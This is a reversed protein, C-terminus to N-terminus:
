MITVNADKIIQNLPTMTITAKGHTGNTIYGFLIDTYEIDNQTFTYKVSGESKFQLKYIGTSYPAVPKVKYTHGQESFYINKLTSKSQNDITINYTSLKYSTHMIMLIAIPFNLLLVFLAIYSKKRYNHVNNKNAKYYYFALSILGITVTLLGLGITLAGALILFHHHTLLWFLYITSGLILPIRGLVIATKYYININEKM